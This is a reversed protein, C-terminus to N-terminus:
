GNRREEDPAPRRRAKQLTAMFGFTPDRIQAHRLLSWNEQLYTELFRVVHHLPVIDYKRTGGTAEGGGFAVLRAQLRDSLKTRGKRRLEDVSRELDDIACRGFRSLVAGLVAPNTAGRNLIPKGEKVEAIILDAEDEPSGLIPDPAFADRVAPGRARSATVIGGAQPLRLAVVDVDTAMRHTGDKMAELVPYETVTFYGNLRLYSQVLAVANDM